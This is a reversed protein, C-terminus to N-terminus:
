SPCQSHCSSVWIFPKGPKLETSILDKSRITITGWKQDAAQAGNTIQLGPPSYLAIEAEAQSPKAAAGAGTPSLEAIDISM